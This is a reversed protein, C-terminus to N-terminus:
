FFYRWKFFFFDNKIFKECLKLAGATGMQEKEEVITILAKSCGRYTSKFEKFMNSKYGTSIIIDRIGHRILNELIYFIFPKSNIPLLPKPTSKTLHGLRTGLGGALIIAQLKNPM